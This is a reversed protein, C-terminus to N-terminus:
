GTEGSRKLSLEWAWASRMMEAIDRRPLWGLRSSALASDSFIAAVDGPRRPGLVHPVTLGTAKEFAQIAELVTVGNGTGLNFVEFPALQQNELLYRLALLHAEALDSVHLYDRVCTGDRTDYDTGFVTLPGRRGAVAQTVIPVLATPPNIPNEGILGSADAGVPNFYRLAIVRLTDPNARVFDQLMREGIQKTYAYPSEALNMPTDERVPLQSVNGYVSCSSSFILNPVGYALCAELLNALGDLNNRYYRLPQAVSEPVSKLAAFHIVGAVEGLQDFMQDLASRDCIDVAFNHVRKGTIAEIHDLTHPDSNLYNDVSVVQWDTQRVIEILTHSGIYGCGGTVLIKKLCFFNLWFSPIERFSLYLYAGFVPSKRWLRM